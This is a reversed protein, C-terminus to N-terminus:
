GRAPLEEIRNLEKLFFKHIKIIWSIFDKRRWIQLAAPYNEHMDYIIRIKKGRVLLALPAMPLDHAHIVDINEQHIIKKAQFIWFPNFFIPYNIIKTFWQIRFRSKVRKVFINQVIEEDQKHNNKCFLHVEHGARILTNAEKEVRIDPPFDKQLLMLIKMTEDRQLSGNGRDTRDM